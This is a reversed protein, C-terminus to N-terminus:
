ERGIGPGARTGDIRFSLVHQADKEGRAAAIGAKVVVESLVSRAIEAPSEAHGAFDGEAEAEELLIKRAEGDQFIGGPRFIGFEEFSAPVSDAEGEIEFLGVVNEGHGVLSTADANGLEPCPIVAGQGRGDVGVEIVDEGAVTFV